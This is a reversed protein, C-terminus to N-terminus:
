LEKLMWINCSSHESDVLPGPLNTFGFQDYLHLAASFHPLSELYLAKYGLKWASDICKQMLAKGIGAGRFSADLYFKVLEAYGENLGTTPYVGCCGTLQDKREAVWLVSDPRKFLRNLNDTTPDSYVTGTLPADFEEFAKRIIRALIPNDSERVERINIDPPMLLAFKAKEDKVLDRINCSIRTPCWYIEYNM